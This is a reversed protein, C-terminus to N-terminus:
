SHTSVVISLSGPRQLATTPTLLATYQDITANNRCSASAYETVNHMVSQAAAEIYSAAM